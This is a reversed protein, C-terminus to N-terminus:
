SSHVHLCVHRHSLAGGSAKAGFNKAISLTVQGVERLLTNMIVTLTMLEEESSQGNGQCTVLGVHFVGIDIHLYYINLM